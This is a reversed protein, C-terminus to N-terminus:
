PAWFVTYERRNRLGVIAAIAVRIRPLVFCVTRACKFKGRWREERRPITPIQSVVLNMEEICSTFEEGAEAGALATHSMSKLMFMFM